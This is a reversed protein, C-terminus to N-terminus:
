LNDDCGWARCLLELSQIGMDQGAVQVKEINDLYPGIHGDSM